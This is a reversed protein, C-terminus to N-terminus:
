LFFLTFLMVLFSALFGLVGVALHSLFGGIRGAVTKLNTEAWGRLDEATVPVITSVRDAFKRISPIAIFDSVSAVQHRAVFSAALSYLHAGQSVLALVLLVAPVVVLLLALATALMAALNPRKVKRLLWRHGPGLTFALVAAWLVPQLFPSLIRWLLYALLAGAVLVFVRPSRPATM